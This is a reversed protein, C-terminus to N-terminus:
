WSPAGSRGARAGRTGRSAAPGGRDGPGPRPDAARQPPRRRPARITPPGANSSLAGPSEPRGLFAPQRLPGGGRGVIRHTPASGRQYRGEGAGTAAVATLTEHTKRRRELDIVSAALRDNTEALRANLTRLEGATERDRRHLATTTLARGTQQMLVRLLFLKDKSPAADAGVVLYGAHGGVARLAYARAWASRTTTVRGDAGDLEKLRTTLEPWDLVRGDPARLDSGSTLLSALPRCSTLSAVSSVALALIQREDRGDSMVMSLTLLNSLHSLQERLGRVRLANGM